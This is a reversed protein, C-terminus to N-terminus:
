LDQNTYKDIAMIVAGIEPPFDAPKIVVDNFQQEIKEKVIKSYIFDKTLLSGIFSVPMQPTQLKKKMASIHLLLEDGQKKLIELAIEDGKHAADIVLPTVSPIDFKNVYVENILVSTSDINMKDKLLSTILTKKGRGDMEKAVAILGLRGIMYGSGEDGIFRGFGGVRHINGEPDKGFMISGTGAILISGPKGSFAGELAIRADSEVFFNNIKYNEESAIKKFDTELKLANEKRGAGTSGIVVSSLDNVSLNLQSTTEKLLDLITKSVKETGIIIFNSPGASAEALINLHEDTVVCKTKTAGGDLGAFYKM